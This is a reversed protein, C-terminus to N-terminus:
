PRQSRQIFDDRSRTQDEERQRRALDDKMRRATMQARGTGGDAERVDSESRLRRTAGTACGALLLILWMCSRM